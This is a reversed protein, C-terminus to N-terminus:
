QKKSLVYDSISKARNTWQHNNKVDEQQQQIIEAFSIKYGMILNCVGILEDITVWNFNIPSSFDNEIGEYYHLVTPCGCGIANLCRDSQYGKRSFNNHGIAVTANNYCEVMEQPNLMKNEQGLGYAKFKDGFSKKMAVVMDQREQANPFDLNTGVYNNGIFVIEGYDKNTKLQPKYWINNYSVPLYMANNIDKSKLTDVDETNTFISLGIIPTIKEFWEISHRVDETYTIVFAIESLTKYNEIDLAESNHNFHLFIVDPNYTKAELILNSRMAETGYSFRHLQWDFFLCEGFVDKFAKTMAESSYSPATIGVHFVKM